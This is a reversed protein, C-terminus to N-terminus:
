SLLFDALAWLSQLAMDLNISIILDELHDRGEPTEVLMKHPNKIEELHAVYCTWSMRRSKIRRVINSLSYAYLKHRQENYFTGM